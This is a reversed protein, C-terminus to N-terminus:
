EETTSDSLDSDDVDSTDNTSSETGESGEISQSNDIEGHGIVSVVAERDDRTSLGGPVTGDKVLVGCCVLMEDIFSAFNPYKKKSEMLAVERDDACDIEVLLQRLGGDGQIESRLWDNTQLRSLMEPTLRWEDENINDASASAIMRRRKIKEVVAEVPLIKDVYKSKIDSKSEINEKVKTIPCSEKHSKCCAISCYTARCKPCKYKPNFENCMSCVPDNAVVM